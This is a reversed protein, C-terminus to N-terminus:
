LAASPSSYSTEISCCPPRARAASTAASGATAAASMAENTKAPTVRPPKSFAVSANTKAPDGRANPARRRSPRWGSGATGPSNTAVSDHSATASASMPSLNSTTVM